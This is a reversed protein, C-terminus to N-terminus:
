TLSCRNMFLKKLHILKRIFAVIILHKNTGMECSVNEMFRSLTTTSCWEKKVEIMQPTGLFGGSKKIFLM